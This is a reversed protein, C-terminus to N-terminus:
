ASPHDLAVIRQNVYGETHILGPDAGLELAAAECDAVFDPNGAIFVSTDGLDGFLDGLITPVRGARAGEPVEDGTYTVVARFNPHISSWWAFLGPDLVDDPTRASFVLTVPHSFGRRLAADTLALIPALGSGSALCVVPTETNPDGVFTGYPGDLLISDGPRVQDHLWNSTQAETSEPSSSSSSM